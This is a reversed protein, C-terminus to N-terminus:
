EPGLLYGGLESLLLGMARHRHTIIVQVLDRATQVLRIDIQQALRTIVPRVFQTLRAHLHAALPRDGQVPQKQIADHFM